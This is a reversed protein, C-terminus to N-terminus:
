SKSYITIGERKIESYISLPSINEFQDKQYSRIDFCYKSDISDAIKDLEDLKKPGIIALDIDSWTSAEGRAFSGYLIIRDPNIARITKSVFKSLPKKITQRDM